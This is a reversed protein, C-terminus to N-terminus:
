QEAESESLLMWDHSPDLVLELFPIGKAEFLTLERLDPGNHCLPVNCNPYSERQRWDRVVIM